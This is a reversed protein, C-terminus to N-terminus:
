REARATPLEAISDVREPYFALYGRISDVAAYPNGYMWVANEGREGASPISFYSCDGKYPCYTTHSTSELRTMDVDAQPIYFVAPYRAERLTLADHTDAIVTGGSTVVVRSPNREITIPHDPSPIKIPKDNTRDPNSM